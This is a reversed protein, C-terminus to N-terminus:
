NKEDAHIARIYKLDNVYVVFQALDPNHDLYDTTYFQFNVMTDYEQPAYYWTNEYRIELRKAFIFGDRVNTPIFNMDWCLRIMNQRMMGVLTHMLVSPFPFRIRLQTVNLRPLPRHIYFLTFGDSAQINCFQIIQSESAGPTLNIFNFLEVDSRYQMRM